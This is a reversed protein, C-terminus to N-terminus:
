LIQNWKFIPLPRSYVNMYKDLSSICITLLSMFLHEVDNDILSICISIVMKQCSLHSHTYFHLSKISSGETQNRACGPGSCRCPIVEQTNFQSYVELVLLFSGLLLFSSFSSLPLVICIDLVHIVQTWDEIGCIIGQGRCSSIGSCLILLLSFFLFSPFFFPLFPYLSLPSFRWNKISKILVVIFVFFCLAESFSAPHFFTIRTCQQHSPM